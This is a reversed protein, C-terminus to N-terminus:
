LSVGLVLSDFNGRSVKMNVNLNLFNPFKPGNLHPRESGELIQRQVFNLVNGHMSTQPFYLLTNEWWVVPCSELQWLTAHRIIMTQRFHWSMDAKDGIWRLTFPHKCPRSVMRAVEPPIIITRTAAALSNWPCIPNAFFTFDIKFLIHLM